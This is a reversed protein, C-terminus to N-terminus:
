AAPWLQQATMWSLPDGAILLGKSRTLASYNLGDLTRSVGGTETLMLSGALHDWPNTSEYTMFDIEGRLIAPYDFACCYYSDVAPSLRGDADFGILRRKSTGGLPKRDRHPRVIPEGNVRAGAGREAVFGLGTM